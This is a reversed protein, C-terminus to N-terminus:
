LHYPSWRSRCEKGVRREESRPIRVQCGDGAVVPPALQVLLTERHRSSQELGFRAHLYQHMRLPRRAFRHRLDDHHMAQFTRAICTIGSAQRLGREFGPKGRVTEVHSAARAGFMEATLREIM